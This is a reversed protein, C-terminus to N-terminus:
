IKNVVKSYAGNGMARDVDLQCVDYHCWLVVLLAVSREDDTPWHTVGHAACSRLLLHMAKKAYFHILDAPPMGPVLDPRGDNPNFDVMITMKPRERKLGRGQLGLAHRDWAVGDPAVSGAAMGTERGVGVGGVLPGGHNGVIALRTAGSLRNMAFGRNPQEFAEAVPALEEAARAPRTPAQMAVCADRRVGSQQPADGARGNPRWVQPQAAVVPTVVGGGKGSEDAADGDMGALAAHLDEGLTFNPVAGHAVASPGKTGHTAQVQAWLLRIQEMARGVVDDGCGDGGLVTDAGRVSAHTDECTALFPTPIMGPLVGAGDPGREHVQPSPAVLPTAPTINSPSGATKSPHMRPPSAFLTRNVVGGGRSLAANSEAEVGSHKLTTTPTLPWQRAYNGSFASGRVVDQSCNLPTLLHPTPYGGHGVAATALSPQLKAEHVRTESTAPGGRAVNASQGTASPIDGDSTEEYINFFNRRM